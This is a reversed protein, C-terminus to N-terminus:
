KRRKRVKPIKEALGLATRALRDAALNRHRPLWCLEVQRFSDLQERIQGFLESFRHIDTRDLGNVCDVVFRSDSYIRLYDAHAHHALDLALALARLEAENNCGHGGLSQSFEQQRGDPGVLIIGAGLKGPNPAATGDFWAHWCSGSEPSSRPMLDSLSVSNTM